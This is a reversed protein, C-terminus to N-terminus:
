PSLDKAAKYIEYETFVKINNLEFLATTVGAGNKMRGDFTGAHIRYKGCSPSKTKLVAIRVGNDRAIGLATEAGKIFRETNDKGSLSIVRANGQLVDKGTGGVIENIERPCDL